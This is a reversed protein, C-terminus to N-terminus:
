LWTTNDEDVAKVRAILKELEDEDEKSRAAVGGNLGHATRWRVMADRAEQDAQDRGLLEGRLAPEEVSIPPSAGHAMAFLGGLCIAVSAIALNMAGGPAM